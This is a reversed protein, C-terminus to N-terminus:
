FEICYNCKKCRYTTIKSHYDSYVSREIDHQCNLKQKFLAREEKCKSIDKKLIEEKTKLREIEGSIYSNLIKEDM